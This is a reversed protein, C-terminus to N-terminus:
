LVHESTNRLRREIKHRGPNEVIQPNEFLLHGLLRVLPRVLRRESEFAPPVAHSTLGSDFSSTRVADHLPPDPTLLAISYGADALDHASEDSDERVM